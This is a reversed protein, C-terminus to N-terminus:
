AGAGAGAATGGGQAQAVAGGAAPAPTPRASAGTGGALASGAGAGAPGQLERTLEAAMGLGGAGTISSSLAQPLMSSFPGSQSGGLSPGGESSSGEGEQGAGEGELGSTQALSRALQDLLMGEFALATRYDQQVAKSGRRVWAPELAQNVPPLGGSFAAPDVSM